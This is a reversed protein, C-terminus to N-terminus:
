YGYPFSNLTDSGEIIYRKSSTFRLQKLVSINRLNVKGMNKKIMHQAVTVRRTRHAAIDFLTQKTVDGSVESTFRVGKLKLEEKVVVGDKEM